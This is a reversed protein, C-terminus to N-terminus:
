GVACDYLEGFSNEILHFLNLGPPGIQLRQQTTIDLRSLTGSSPHVKFSLGMAGLIHGGLDSATQMDGVQQDCGEGQGM